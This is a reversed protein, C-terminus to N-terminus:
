KIVAPPLSALNLATIINTNHWIAAIHAPESAANYAIEYCRVFFVFECFSHFYITVDVLVTPDVPQKHKRRLLKRIRPSSLKFAFM